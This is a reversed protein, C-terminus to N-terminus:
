ELKNKIHTILMKYKKWSKNYHIFNPDIIDMEIWSNRLNM